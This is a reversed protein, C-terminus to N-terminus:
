YTIDATRPQESLKTRRSRQVDPVRGVGIKIIDNVAGSGVSSFVAPRLMNVTLVDTADSLNSLFTASANAVQQADAVPFLGDSGLYSAPTPLYFRGAHGRGRPIATRTTVAWSVETPVQLSATGVLPTPYTYVNTVEGPLYKGNTGVLNAKFWVLTTSNSILDKIANWYITLKDKMNPLYTLIDGQDPDTVPAVSRMRLTNVWDEAGNALKGGWSVLTHQEPYAM